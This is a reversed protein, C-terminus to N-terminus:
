YVRLFGELIEVHREEDLIIRRFLSQISIDDIDRILREYHAIAHREGVLDSELINRLSYQYDPFSGRWFENTEYSLLLPNLGLRLILRGLLNQHIVETFAIYKYATHIDPYNEIFYRHSMYQVIATTESGQGAYAGSVLTAYHRNPRSVQV